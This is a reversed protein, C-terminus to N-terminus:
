RSRIAFRAQLGCVVACFPANTNIYLKPIAVPQDEGDIRQSLIRGFVARQPMRDERLIEAADGSLVPTTRFSYETANRHPAFSGEVGFLKMEPDNALPMKFATPPHRPHHYLISLSLSGNTNAAALSARTHARKNELCLECLASGRAVRKQFKSVTSRGDGKLGRQCNM